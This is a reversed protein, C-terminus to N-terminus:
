GCVMGSPDFKPYGPRFGNHSNADAFYGRGNFPGELGNGAEECTSRVPGEFNIHLLRWESGLVERWVGVIGVRWGRGGRGRVM